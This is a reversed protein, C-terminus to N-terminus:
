IRSFCVELKTSDDSDSSVLNIAQETENEVNKSEKKKAIKVFAKKEPKEEEQESESTSLDFNFPPASKRKERSVLLKKVAENRGPESKRTRKGPGTTTAKEPKIAKSKKEPKIAYSKYLDAIFQEHEDQPPPAVPQLYREM